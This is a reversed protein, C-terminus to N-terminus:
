WPFGTECDLNVTPRLGVLPRVVRRSMRNNAHLYMQRIFHRWADGRQKQRMSHCEHWRGIASSETLLSVKPTLSILPFREFETNVNYKRMHRCISERALIKDILRDSLLYASSRTVYWALSRGRATVPWLTILSIADVELM